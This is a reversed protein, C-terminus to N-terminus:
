ELLTGNLAALVGAACVRNLEDGIILGHFADFETAPICNMIKADPTMYELPPRPMSAAILNLEGFRRLMSDPVHYSEDWDMAHPMLERDVFDRM